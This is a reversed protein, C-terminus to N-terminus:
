QKQRDRGPGGRLRDRGKGGILRDRGKGGCLRDKAGLGRIVDNGALGVIVDPFRTGKLTDKKPTGYITAYQGACKPPVVIPTVPDEFLDTSSTANSSILEQEHTARDVRVLGGTEGPGLSFDAVIYDGNLDLATRHPNEFVDPGPLDNGAIQTQAGTRRDVGILGGDGGFAGDDTVILPGKPPALIGELSTFFGTPSITNDSLLSQQGTASVRLITGAGGEYNLVHIRGASNVGLDYPDKLLDPGSIANNSVVSQVGSRTVRVIDNDPDDTGADDSVLLSGSPERELGFPDSINGGQTVERQAGTALNIAIVRDADFDTAYLTGRPDLVLDYAADMFLDTVSYPVLATQEGTVPDVKVIDAATGNPNAVLIDGSRLALSAGAVAPVCVLLSCAGFAIAILRRM